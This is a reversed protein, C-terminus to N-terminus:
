NRRRNGGRGAKPFKDPYDQKLKRLLLNITLVQAIADELQLPEARHSQTEKFAGLVGQFLHIWSEVEYTSAGQPELPKHEGLAQNLLLEGTLMPPLQCVERLIMELRRAVQFVAGGPNREIDKLDELLEPEIMWYPVPARFRPPEDQWLQRGLDSLSHLDFHSAPDAHRLQELDEDTPYGYAIRQFQDDEAWHEQLPIEYFGILDCVTAFGRGGEGLHTGFGDSILTAKLGLWDWVVFCVDTTTEDKPMERFVATIARPRYPGTLIAVMAKVCPLTTGSEGLFQYPLPHQVNEAM